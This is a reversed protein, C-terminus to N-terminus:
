VQILKPFIWAKRSAPPLCEASTETSLRVWRDLKIQLHLIKDKKLGIRATNQGSQITETQMQRSKWHKM